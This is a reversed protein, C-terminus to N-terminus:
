LTKIDVQKVLNLSTTLSNGIVKFKEKKNKIKKIQVIVFHPPPPSNVSARFCIAFVNYFINHCVKNKSNVIITYQRNLWQL